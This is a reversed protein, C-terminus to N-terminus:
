LRPASLWRSRARAFRVSSSRHCQLGTRGPDQNKPCSQLFGIDKIITIVVTLTSRLKVAWVVALPEEELDDLALAVLTITSGVGDEADCGLLAVDAGLAHWSPTWLENEIAHPGGSARRAESHALVPDLRSRPPPSLGLCGLGICRRCAAWSGCPDVDRQCQRCFRAALSVRCASSWPALHGM